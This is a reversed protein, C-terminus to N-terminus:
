RRGPEPRRLGCRIAWSQRDQALRMWDQGLDQRLSDRWRTAPRGLPRKIDLPIWETVTRTWRDDTRRALHGAWRKKSKDALDVVDEVRTMARLQENSVRDTWKVGVMRREIARQTVALKQRDAATTSWTESGYLLAPIVCSNYLNTRVDPDIKKNSAAEAISAYSVWAARKRRALERGNQHEMTLEQGLYVYSNVQEIPHQGVTITNDAVHVNRMWKTKAMNIKLGVAAGALDLETLRRQIDAVSHGVLVVDDAFRLHNLWRGNIKIGTEEWDLQRFVHELSANFLKPSIPDGQKVGRGIAINIPRDFLTIETNCDKNLEQLLAIYESGIGQQQLALLMANIEVSDFAKEYDVFAMVLPIKYERSKELLQNLVHIHDMTSYGARFGAQEPPQQEDLLKTLRNLLVKTFIKYTSTLLAIPRYNSLQERDGKKFLLM